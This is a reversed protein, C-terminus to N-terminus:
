RTQCGHKGRHQEGPETASQEGRNAEEDDQRCQPSSSHPPCSSPGAAHKKDAKTRIAAATANALGCAVRCTERQKPAKNAAIPRKMMRDASRHLPTRRAVLLDRQM